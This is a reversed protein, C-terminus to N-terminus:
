RTSLMRLIRTISTIRTTTRTVIRIAIIITIKTTIITNRSTRTIRTIRPDHSPPIAPVAGDLADVSAADAGRPSSPSPSPSAIPASSSVFFDVEIPEFLPKISKVLMYGNSFETLRNHAHIRFTPLDNVYIPDDADGLNIPGEGLGILFALTLLEVTKSKCEPCSDVDIQQSNLQWYGEDLTKSVITAFRLHLLGQGQAPTESQSQSEQPADSPEADTKRGRRPKKAKADAANVLAAVARPRFYFRQKLLKKLPDPQDFAFCAQSSGYNGYEQACAYPVYGSRCAVNASDVRHPTRHAHFSCLPVTSTQPLM